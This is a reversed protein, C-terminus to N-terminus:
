EFSFSASRPRSSTGWVTLTYNRTAFIEFTSANTPIVVNFSESIIQSNLNASNIGLKLDFRWLQAGGQKAATEWIAQDADRDLLRMRLITTPYEGLTELRVHLTDGAKELRLPPQSCSSIWATALLALIIRAQRKKHILM